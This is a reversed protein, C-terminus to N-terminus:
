PDTWFYDLHSIWGMVFVLDRPGDGLVEYAINVDGSRAYRVKPPSFQTGHAPRVVRTEAALDDVEQVEGIFRYGRRPVTEIHKQGQEPSDLAKRLISINQ